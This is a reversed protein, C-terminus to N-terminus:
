WNEDRLRRITDEAPEDGENWDFIGRVRLFASYDVEPMIEINRVDNVTQALGNDDRLIWGTVEITKGWYEVLHDQYEASLQCRIPKDFIVDRIHIEPKDIIAYVIGTVTGFDRKKDQYQVAM